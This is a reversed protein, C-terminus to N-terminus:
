NLVKRTKLDFRQGSVLLHLKIASGALNGRPDTRIGNARSADLVLVSREGLVTFKNDPNVIIATSEDIGIGLLEPNELVLSFLRNFRKRRIFHQDIIASEILGFGDRVEINKERIIGFSHTTDSNVLEDGTIMLPSMVAAGASTGSVVGGNDYLAQMKQLFYSGELVEQLRRQSGGTFFVGTVGDLRELTSDSNVSSRSLYVYEVKGAGYERFQAQMSEAAEVSDSSANPVILIHAQNGGALEVIKEMLYDPREGGGIIVLHGRNRSEGSDSSCNSFLPILAILIIIRLAYYISIRM